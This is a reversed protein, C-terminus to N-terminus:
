GELNEIDQWRIRNVYKVSWASVLKHHVIQKKDHVIFLYCGGCEKLTGDQVPNLMFHGKRTSRGDKIRLQCSKIEILRGQAYVDCVDGIWQVNRLRYVDTLLQMGLAEMREGNIKGKKGM